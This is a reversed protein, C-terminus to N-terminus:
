CLRHPDDVALEFREALADASLLLCRDAVIAALELGLRLCLRLSAERDIRGLLRLLRAAPRGLLLRALLRPHIRVLERLRRLMERVLLAGLGVRRLLERLEV